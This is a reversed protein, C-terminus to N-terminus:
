RRSDTSSFANRYRIRRVVVCELRPVFERVVILQINIIHINIIESKNTSRKEKIKFIPKQPCNDRASVLAASLLTAGLSLRVPFVNLLQYYYVASLDVLM